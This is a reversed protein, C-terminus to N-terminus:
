PWRGKRRVFLGSVHGCELREDCVVCLRVDCRLQRWQFSVELGFMSRMVADRIETTMAVRHLKRPRVGDTPLAASGELGPEAHRLGGSREPDEVNNRGKPHLGGQRRAEETAKRRGGWKRTLRALNSRLPRWRM